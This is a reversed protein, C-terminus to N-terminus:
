FNMVFLTNEHCHHAFLIFRIRCQCRTGRIYSLVFLFVLFVAIRLIVVFFFSHFRCPSLRLRFSSAFSKLDLPFFDILFTETKFSSKCQHHDQTKPRQNEWIETKYFKKKRKWFLIFWVCVCVWVFCSVKRQRSRKLESRKAMSEPKRTLHYLKAEFFSYGGHLINVIAHLM